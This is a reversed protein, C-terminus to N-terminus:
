DLFVSCDPTWPPACVALFVLDAEGTNHIEHISGAPIAVADGPNMRITEGDLTVTAAGALIYYSEEAVPHYHRAAGRGPPLTIQALSHQQTGGAATGMLEHIIEGTPSTVPQITGTSHIHM